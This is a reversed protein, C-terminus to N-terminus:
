QEMVESLWHKQIGSVVPPAELCASEALWSFHWRVSKTIIVLFICLHFSSPSFFFMMRVLLFAFLLSCFFSFHSPLALCFTSFHSSLESFFILIAVKRAKGYIFINRKVYIYACSIGTQQVTNWSELRRPNSWFDPDPEESLNCVSTEISLQERFQIPKLLFVFYMFFHSKSSPGNQTGLCARTCIVHYDM